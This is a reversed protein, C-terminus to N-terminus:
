KSSSISCHLTTTRPRHVPEFHTGRSLIITLWIIATSGVPADNADTDAYDTM